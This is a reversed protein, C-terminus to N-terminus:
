YITGDMMHVIITLIYFISIVIVAQYTLKRKEEPHELYAISGFIFSVIPCIVTICLLVPYPLLLIAHLLFRIGVFNFFHAVWFITPIVLISYGIYVVRNTPMSIHHVDKPMYKMM